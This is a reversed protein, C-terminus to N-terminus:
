QPGHDVSKFQLVGFKNMVPPTLSHTLSHGVDLVFLCAFEGLQQKQIEAQEKMKTYQQLVIKMNQAHRYQRQYLLFKRLGMNRSVSDTKKRVAASIM